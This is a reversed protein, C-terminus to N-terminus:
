ETREVASSALHSATVPEDVGILDAIRRALAAGTGQALDAHWLAIRAVEGRHATVAMQRCPQLGAVLGRGWGPTRGVPHAELAGRTEGGEAAVPLYSPFLHAVGRRLRGATADALEAVPAEEALRDTAVAAEIRTLDAVGERELPPTSGAQDARL